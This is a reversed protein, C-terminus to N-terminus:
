VIAKGDGKAKELDIALAIIKNAFMVADQAAYTFIVPPDDEDEMFALGIVDDDNKDKLPVVNSMFQPVYTANKMLEAIKLRKTIEDQSLPEGNLKQGM